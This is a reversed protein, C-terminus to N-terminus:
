PLLHIHDLYGFFGALLMSGALGVIIVCLGELIREALPQPNFRHVPRLTRLHLRAARVHLWCCASLLRGTLSNHHRRRCPRCAWHQPQKPMGCACRTGHMWYGFTEVKIPDTM